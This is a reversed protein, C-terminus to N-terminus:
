GGAPSTSRCNACTSSPRFASLYAQMAIARTNAADGPAIAAADLDTRFDEIRPLHLRRDDPHSRSHAPPSNRPIRAHHPFASNRM